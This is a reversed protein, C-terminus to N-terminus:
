CLVAHATVARGLRLGTEIKSSKLILFRSAGIALDPAPDLLVDFPPEHRGVVPWLRTAVLNPQQSLPDLRRRYGLIAASRKVWASDRDTTEIASFIVIRNAVQHADVKM